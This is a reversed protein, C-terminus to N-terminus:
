AGDAKQSAAVAERYEAEELIEAAEKADAQGQKAEVTKRHEKELNWISGMLSIFPKVEKDFAETMKNAIDTLEKRSEDSVHKKGDFLKMLEDARRILLSIGPTHSSIYPMRENVNKVVRVYDGIIDGLAEGHHWMVEFEDQKWGCWGVIKSLCELKSTADDLIDSLDIPDLYPHGEYPNLMNKDGKSKAYAKSDIIKGGPRLFDEIPRFNPRNPKETKQLGNSIRISTEGNKLLGRTDEHEGSIDPQIKNETYTKLIGNKM